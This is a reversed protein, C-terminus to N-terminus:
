CWTLAVEPVALLRASMCVVGPPGEAWGTWGVPRFGRDLNMAAHHGGVLLRRRTVAFSLAGGVPVVGDHRQPQCHGGVGGKGHRNCIRAATVSASLVGGSLWCILQSRWWM